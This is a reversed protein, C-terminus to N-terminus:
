NEIRRGCYMMLGGILKIFISNKAYLRGITIIKEYKLINSFKIM